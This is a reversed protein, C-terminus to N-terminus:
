HFTEMLASTEYFKLCTRATMAKFTDDQALEPFLNLVESSGFLLEAHLSRVLMRHNPSVMLPRDNGVSGVEFRIPATNENVPVTKTGVWVVPQYGADQTFVMDGKVLREIPVEGCATKIMTGKVFCPVVEQHVNDSAGQRTYTEGVVLPVSAGPLSYLAINTQFDGDVKPVLVDDAPSGLDIGRAGGFFFTDVVNWGAPAGAGLSQIVPAAGTESGSDDGVGFDDDPDFITVTFSGTVTFNFNASGSINYLTYTHTGSPM